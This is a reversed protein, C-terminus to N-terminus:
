LLYITIDIHYITEIHSISIPHIKNKFIKFFQSTKFTNFCQSSVIVLTCFAGLSGANTYSSVLRVTAM